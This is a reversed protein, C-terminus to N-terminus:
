GNKEVDTDCGHTGTRLCQDAFRCYSACGLDTRPNLIKRGCGRCRRMSEDKFFEVSQGCSPCRTEFIADADWFGTDQGPCKM